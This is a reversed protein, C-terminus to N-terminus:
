QPACSYPWIRRTGAPRTTGDNMMVPIAIDKQDAPLAKLDQSDFPPAARYFALPDLWTGDEAIIGTGSDAFRPGPAKWAAFHVAPRRNTTQGGGHGALGSNGTLGIIQGMAVRDGVQLTPTANLHAYQTYTWFPLGTDEPAHRLNIERGRQSDEGEYIGVVTGAAAALIPTNWPMPIDTGGHLAGTKHRKFGYDLAFYDDIGPCLATQPFLPPTATDLLGYEDLNVGKGCHAGMELACLLRRPMTAAAMTDNALSPDQTGPSPTGAYAGWPRKIYMDALEQQNLSGDGDEDLLDFNGRGAWEARSIRGDDDRDVHQFDREARKADQAAAPLASLITLATLLISFRQIAPM